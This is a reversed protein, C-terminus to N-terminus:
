HPSPAQPSILTYVITLPPTHPTPQGVSKTTLSSHPTARCILVQSGVGYVILRVLATEQIIGIGRPCRESKEM